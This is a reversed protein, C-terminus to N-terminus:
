VVVVRFLLSLVFSCDTGTKKLITKEKATKIKPIEANIKKIGEDLYGFMQKNLPRMAKGFAAKDADKLFAKMAKVTQKMIGMVKKIQQKAVANNTNALAATM